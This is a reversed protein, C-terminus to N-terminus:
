PYDHFSSHRLLICHLIFVRFPITPDGLHNIHSPTQLALQEMIVEESISTIKSNTINLHETASLKIAKVTKVFRGTKPNDAALTCRVHFNPTNM